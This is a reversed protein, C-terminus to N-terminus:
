DQTHKCLNKNAPDQTIGAKLQIYQAELQTEDQYGVLFEARLDQEDHSPERISDGMSDSESDETPLEENPVQEIAYVRKKEKSCNSAYHYTSGFNHFTNKKKTMDAGKPKDKNSFRDPHKEKFSSGRYLSSKGIKTRKRLDQSTNSIDDLTCSQNCRCKIANELEGPM